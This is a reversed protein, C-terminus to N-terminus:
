YILYNLLSICTAYRWSRYLNRFWTTHLLPSWTFHLYLDTLYHAIYLQQTLVYRVHLVVPFLLYLGAGYAASWWLTTYHYLPLSLPTSPLCKLIRDAYACADISGTICSNHREVTPVILTLSRAVSVSARDAIGLSVSLKNQRIARIKLTSVRM